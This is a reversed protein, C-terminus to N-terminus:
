GGDGSPFSGWSKKWSWERTSESLLLAGAEEQRTNAPEERKKRNGGVQNSVVGAQERLKMGEERWPM